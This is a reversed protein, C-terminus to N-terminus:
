QDRNRGHRNDPPDLERILYEELGSAEHPADDPVAVTCVFRPSRTWHHKVRCARSGDQEYVFYSGLRGGISGAISSKGVYLVNQQDDLVTYVGARTNNIWTEDWHAEVSPAGVRPAEPFLDYLGSPEIGPRDPHRFTADYSGIAAKFDEVTAM